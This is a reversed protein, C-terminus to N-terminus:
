EVSPFGARDVPAPPRAARRIPRTVHGRSQLHRVDEAPVAVGITAIVFAM